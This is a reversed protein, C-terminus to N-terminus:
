LEGYPIGELSYGSAGSKVDWIGLIASPDTTDGSPEPIEIWTDDRKTIPDVPMSRFYGEEVLQHISAPYKGKDYKYQDLTERIRFLNERLVAERARQQADKFRPLAVSVLLGVITLVILLEILTYGNPPDFVKKGNMM